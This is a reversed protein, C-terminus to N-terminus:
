LRWPPRVFRGLLRNAEADEPFREAAPDWRLTRGAQIAIHGLQCLSNTRHGVEADAITRGRTKVCDIFDRKESKRPLQVEDPRVPSRLMSEPEGTVSSKTWDAEVWGGDGEFRVYPHDMRYILRVGDAFRYSIEFDILVNWLGDAPYTGRGEIEVPGTHETDHGWQAIDLVHSGWNTVMGECYDRVRMWGPRGLDRVPHVRDACYPADPAPGLWADYDLEAPVPKPAPNGGAVDGRPVGARITHLRGIRGSRVLECARHFFGLSRAESDTRFVRGYRAVADSLARGEAVCLTLPKELAIDKGARAAALAMPVHWHDPTSIMVADIDARGLVERFDSCAACPGAAGARGSAPYKEDVMRRANELRWADVDCVALVQVDEYSLFTRLNALTGQRGVGILGLGVRGSPATRGDAGRSSAPLVYPAALAAAATRMLARRTLNM